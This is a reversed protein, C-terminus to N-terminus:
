KTSDTPLKAPLTPLLWITLLPLVPISLALIVWGTVSRKKKRALIATPIAAAVTVITLFLLASLASEITDTGIGLQGLLAVTNPDLM